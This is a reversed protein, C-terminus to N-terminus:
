FMGIDIGMDGIMGGGKLGSRKEMGGMM